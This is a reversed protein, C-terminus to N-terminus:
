ESLSELSWSKRELNSSSSLLIWAKLRSSGRQM